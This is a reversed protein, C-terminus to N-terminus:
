ITKGGPIQIEKKREKATQNKIEPGSNSPLHEVMQAM